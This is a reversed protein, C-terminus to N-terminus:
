ESTKTVGTLAILDELFGPYSTAIEDINGIRISSNGIAAFICATMAIRHDHGPDVTIDASWSSVSGGDIRLGDELEAVRIRLSELLSTMAKIRDSEKVRLEHAGIIQSTGKALAWAVCLAPFEDILSPVELPEVNTAELQTGEVTLRERTASIMVRTIRAGMRALVRLYGNREEGGYTGEVVLHSGPRAAAACIFFAASSPDRDVVLSFPQPVQGPILVYRVRQDDLLEEGVEVGALKLMEETHRRTKIPETVILSERAGLGAILLASKVQASAVTLEIDGGSTAGGRIVLPLVGGSNRGDITAGLKVLPTVVRNMPRQSLSADGTLIALGNLHTLVGLGIRVTTGSNGCDIVKDPERLEWMGPSTIVTDAGRESIDAGLASVLRVTADIDSSHLLDTIVTKGASLVGLLLARHSISKDPPPCLVGSVVGAHGEIRVVHAPSQSM